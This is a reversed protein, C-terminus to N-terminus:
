AACPRKKAKKMQALRDAQMLAFLRFFMQVREEYGPVDRNRAGRCQVMRRQLDLEVSYLPKDLADEERLTCLITKGDAYRAAYSGMCHHQMKGEAVVDGLSPIPMMVLGCASFRCDSIQMLFRDLREQEEASLRVKEQKALRAHVREFDKPFAIEEDTMPVQQNRMMRLHDLWDIMNPRKKLVYNIAKRLMGAQGTLRAMEELDKATWFRSFEWIKENGIRLGLAGATQFVKLEGCGPRLGHGKMWGWVDGSIRLVSAATKGRLNLLGDNKGAAVREALEQLGLKTLYELCGTGAIRALLEIKSVSGDCRELSEIYPEFPTGMLALRYRIIHRVHATCDGYPNGFFAFGNNCQKRMRWAGQEYVMRWAGKGMQFVCVQAPEIDMEPAIDWAAVEPLACDDSRWDARCRYSVMVLVRSDLASKRLDHFVIRDILASHGRSMDRYGVLHFCEPCFGKHGHVPEGDLDGTDPNKYWAPHAFEDFELADIYPDSILHRPTELADRGSIVRHCHSCVGSKEAGRGWMWMYHPMAEFVMEEVCAPTLWGAHLLMEEVTM